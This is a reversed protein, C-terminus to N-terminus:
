LCSLCSLVPVVPVVTCYLCYLCVHAEFLVSVATCYLCYMHVQAEFLVPPRQPVEVAALNSGKIGTIDTHVFSMPKLTKADKRFGLGM